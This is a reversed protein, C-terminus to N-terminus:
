THRLQAAPIAMREWSSSSFPGPDFGTLLLGQASGNCALLTGPCETEWTEVCDAGFTTLNDARLV